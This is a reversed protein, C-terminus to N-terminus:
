PLTQVNDDTKLIDEPANLFFDFTQNVEKVGDQSCMKTKECIRLIFKQWKAVDEPMVWFGAGSKIEYCMQPPIAKRVQTNMTVSGCWGDTNPINFYGTLDPKEEKSFTSCGTLVVTTGCILLLM